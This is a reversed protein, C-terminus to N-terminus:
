VVRLLTLKPFIGCAISVLADIEKVLNGKGIGGISPNCSMVGITDKRQTVLLTKCGIRSSAAAAECGAHGGGIVIVDYSNKRTVTCGRRWQFSSSSTNNRKNYLLRCIM